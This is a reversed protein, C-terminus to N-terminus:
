NQGRLTAFKLCTKNLFGGSGAIKLFITKGKLKEYIISLYVPFGNQYFDFSKCENFFKIIKEIFKSCEKRKTM